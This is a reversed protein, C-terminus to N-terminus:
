VHIKEKLWRSYRIIEDEESQSELQAILNLLESRLDKSKLGGSLEASKSILFLMSKEIENEDMDLENKFEKNVQDFRYKWFDLDGLEYRIILEAVAIKFKLARDAKTYSDMLYTKNLNKIAQSFDKIDFYSTALNVYIFLEYFPLKKINELKQMEKLLRIAEPVDFTSYNNVLANYYFIEYKNYLLQHHENMAEKLTQAYKLSEKVKGNKFLTNVIYTLM